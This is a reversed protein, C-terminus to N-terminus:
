FWRKLKRDPNLNREALGVALHAIGFGLKAGSQFLSEFDLTRATSVCLLLSAVLSYRWGLDRGVDPIWRCGDDSDREIPRKM